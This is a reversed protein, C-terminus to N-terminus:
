PVILFPPYFEMTLRDEDHDENGGSLFPPDFGLISLLLLEVKVQFTGEVTQYQITFVLSRCSVFQQRHM